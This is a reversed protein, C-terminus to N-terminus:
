KLRLLYNLTWGVFDVEGIYTKLAIGTRIDPFLRYTLEFKQYIPDKAKWPSYLYLGLYQTVTFKGALFDFGGTVAFRKYDANANEVEITKRVGGDLVLEAGGNVAFWSNFQHTFRASMGYIGKPGGYIYRFGGLVQFLIYNGSSGAQEVYRYGNDLSPFKKPFYELGMSFTPFNLGM